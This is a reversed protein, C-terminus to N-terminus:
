IVENITRGDYIIPHFCRCPIPASPREYSVPSARSILPPDPCFLGGPSREVPGLLGCCM